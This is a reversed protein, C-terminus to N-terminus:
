HHRTNCRSKDDQTWSFLKTPSVRNLNLNNARAWSEINDLEKQRYDKNKAPIILYTDDAYKVLQNDSTVPKLDAANVVYSAPGLGSGQIISASINLLASKTGRYVTCHSHDAFFNVLWNYVNDPIHMFQRRQPADMNLLM